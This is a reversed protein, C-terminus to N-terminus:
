SAPAGQDHTHHGRLLGAGAHTLGSPPLGPTHPWLSAPESHCSKPMQKSHGPFANCPNSCLLVEESRLKEPSRVAATNLTPHLSALSGYPCPSGYCLQSATASPPPPTLTILLLRSQVQKLSPSLLTQQGTFLTPHKGKPTVKYILYGAGKLCASNSKHPRWHSPLTTPPSRPSLHCVPGQHGGTAMTTSRPGEGPMQGRAESVSLQRKPADSAASGAKWSTVAM